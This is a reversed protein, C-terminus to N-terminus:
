VLELRGAASVRWGVSQQLAEITANFDGSNVGGANPSEPPTRPDALRWVSLRGRSGLWVEEGKPDIAVSSAGNSAIADLEVGSRVDWLRATNDYAVSVAVSGDPTLAVGLVPATHGVLAQEPQGTTMNWVRVTGDMSASVVLRGASDFGLSTVAAGHGSLAPLQRGTRIDWVRITGDVSGLLARSGDPSCAISLVDGQSGQLPLRRLEPSALAGVTLSGDSGSASVAWRGDASVAM